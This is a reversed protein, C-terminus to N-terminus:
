AVLHLERRAELCVPADSPLSSGNAELLEPITVELKASLDELTQAETILGPVADSEAVWVHAEDDWFATVTISEM